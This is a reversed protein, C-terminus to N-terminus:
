LASVLTAKKIDDDTVGHVEWVVVVVFWFQEPEKSGAGKFVLLQIASTM